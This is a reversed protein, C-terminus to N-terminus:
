GLNDKLLIVLAVAAGQAVSSKVQFYRYGIIEKLAETGIAFSGSFKNYTLVQLGYKDYVDYFTTGDNSVQISINGSTYGSPIIISDFEYWKLEIANSVTAGSAISLTTAVKSTDSPFHRPM